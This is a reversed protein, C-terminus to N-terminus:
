AMGGFPDDNPLEVKEMNRKITKSEDIEARCTPCQAVTDKDKNHKLWDKYCEEHLIHKKHCALEIVTVPPEFTEVCIPCMIDIM